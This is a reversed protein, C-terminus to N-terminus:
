SDGPCHRRGRLQRRAARRGGPGCGGLGPDPDFGRTGRCKGQPSRAPYSADLLVCLDPWQVWEAAWRSHADSTFAVSVGLGYRWSALLPDGPGITLLVDATPKPRTIVYGLLPPALDFNIGEIVPSYRAVDPFSPEERLASRSVQATEKAFIRPLVAPDDVAYYRGQGLSAIRSLLGSDHDPGIGVTSVTIRASSMELTIGEFDGPASIGDTLVIVHKIRARAALLAEYAAVMPPYMVTGGGAEIRAVAEIIAQKRSAPQLPAIWYFDGDFALVGVLDNPGLMEIANVAARKAM